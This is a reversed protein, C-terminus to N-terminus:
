PKSGPAPMAGLQRLLGLNDSSIWEEVIKGGAVRYIGIWSVTVSRGTPAIGMFEGSHTARDTGRIVVDDGEAVVQEITTHLDPFAALYGTAVQRYASPGRRHEGPSPDHNFYDAALTEEIVALNQENWVQELFRRVLAKNEEVAM